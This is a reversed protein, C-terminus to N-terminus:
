IVSSEWKPESSGVFKRESRQVKNIYVETVHALFDEQTRDNKFSNCYKCCPVVNNIEYGLNNDVRDIGQYYVAAGNDRKRCNLPPRNCYYCNQIFLKSAEELSLEFNINREKSKKVYERYVDKYTYIVSNKEARVKLETRMKHSCQMCSTFGESMLNSIKRTVHTSDGDSTNGCSCQLTYYNTDYNYSTITFEGIKQGVQYHIM